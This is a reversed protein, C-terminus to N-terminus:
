VRKSVRLRLGLGLRVRVRVRVRVRLWVVVQQPHRVPRVAASLQQCGDPTRVAVSLWQCGRGWVHRSLSDWSYPVGHPTVTYHSPVANPSM